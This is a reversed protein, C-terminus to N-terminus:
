LKVNLDLRVRYSTVDDPPAAVLPTSILGWLQLGIKATFQHNAGLAHGRFNNDTVFDDQALPAFVADAGVQQYQYWGRWDGREAARGM